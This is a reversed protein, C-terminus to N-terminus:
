KKVQKGKIQRFIEKLEKNFENVGTESDMFIGYRAKEYIALWNESCGVGIRLFWEVVNEGSNRELGKKKAYKELSRMQKRIQNSAKTYGPDMQLVYDDQDKFVSKSDSLFALELSGKDYITWKRLKIFFWIIFAIVIGTALIDIIEYHHVPINESVLPNKVKNSVEGTRKGFIKNTGVSFFGVLINLIPAVMYLLQSFLFTFVKALPYRITFLLLTMIAASGLPIIVLWCTVSLVNRKVISGKEFYKRIFSGFTYLFLQLVVLFLPELGRNVQSIFGAAYNVLVLILATLIKNSESDDDELMNEKLNAHLRWQIFLSLCVCLWIPLYCVIGLGFSIPLSLLFFATKIEFGAIFRTTFLSLVISLIPIIFFPWVSMTLLVPYIVNLCLLFVAIEMVTRRNLEMVFVLFSRGMQINM